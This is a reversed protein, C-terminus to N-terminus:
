QIALTTKGYTNPFLKYREIISPKFLALSLWACCSQNGIFLECGAIVRALELYNKTYYYPIYGFQDVFLNYEDVHGLFVADKHKNKIEKWPFSDDHYRKTRNIITSSIPNKDVKIWPEEKLYKTIGLSLACCETINLPFHSYLRWQDLNIAKSNKSFEVSTIYDQSKLLPRLSEVTQLSMPQSTYTEPHLFLNGGGLTKVCPLCAILDGVDGACFFNNKPTVM